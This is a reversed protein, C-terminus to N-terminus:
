DKWEFWDRMGTMDWVEDFSRGVGKTLTSEVIAMTVGATPSHQSPTPDKSVTRLLIAGAGLGTVM